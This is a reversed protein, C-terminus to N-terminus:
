SSLPLRASAEQYVDDRTKLGGALYKGAAALHHWRDPATSEQFSEIQADTYKTLHSDQCTSAMGALLSTLGTSPYGLNGYSLISDGAAEGDGEELQHEITALSADTRPKRLRPSFEMPGDAFALHYLAVWAAGALCLEKAESDDVLRASWRLAHLTTLAHVWVIDLRLPGALMLHTAALAAAEWLFRTPAGQGLRQGLMEWPGNLLQQDLTHHLSPAIGQGARNEPPRPTGSLLAGALDSRLKSENGSAHFSKWEVPSAKRLVGLGSFCPQSSFMQYTAALWTAVWPFLTNSRNGGTFELARTMHMTGILSHELLGELALRALSSSARLRGQQHDVTLILQAATKTDGKRIANRLHQLGVRYGSGVVPPISGLSQLRRAALNAEAVSQIAAIHQYRAPSIAALRYRAHISLPAHTGLSFDAFNGSAVPQRLAVELAARHLSAPNQSQGVLEAMSPVIQHSEAEEIKRVLDTHAVM